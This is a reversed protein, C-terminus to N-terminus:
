VVLSIARMVWGWASRLACLLIKTLTNNTAKGKKVMNGKVKAEWNWGMGDWSVCRWRLVMVIPVYLTWAFFSLVDVWGYWELGGTSGLGLIM